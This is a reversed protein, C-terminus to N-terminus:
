SRRKIKPFIRAKSEASSIQHFVYAPLLQHVGGTRGKPLPLYVPERGGINCNNQTARCEENYARINSFVLSKEM